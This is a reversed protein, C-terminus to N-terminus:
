ADPRLIGHHCEYEFFAAFGGNAVMTMDLAASGFRRIGHISKGFCDKISALTAEMM